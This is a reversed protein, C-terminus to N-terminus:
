ASHIEEQSEARFFKKNRSKRGKRHGYVKNDEQKKFTFGKSSLLNNECRSDLQHVMSLLLVSLGDTDCHQMTETFFLEKKKFYRCSFTLVDGEKKIQEAECRYLERGSIQMSVSIM